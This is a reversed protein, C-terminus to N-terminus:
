RKKKYEQFRQALDAVGEVGIFSLLPTIVVLMEEVSIDVDFFHRIFVQVGVILSALLALKFKRNSVKNFM